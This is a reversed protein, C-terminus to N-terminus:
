DFDLGQVQGLFEGERGELLEDIDVNGATLYKESVGVNVRQNLLGKLETRLAAIESKSTEAAARMRKRKGGGRGMASGEGAAFEESDYDVGLEEAATKLWNGEHREKEKALNADSIRKALSVRPKLRTVVRRDLDLTRIFFKSKKESSDRDQAHVKAVLRRVPVVEDPACILISTGSQEARATRGSRHVYADATRPIHYHLILQVSPIDLGRAAVDTAVLVSSSSSCAFREICHLRAKQEMQSHLAHAQINLNQLFPVLRRTSSISNTFILIRGNPHHLLVAYLYLDKELAACEVLGERLSSAMQAAPNVDIFKPREERFKLKNFLYGLSGQGNTVKSESLRGKGALKRQLDKEFTASFVLTQRSSRALSSQTEDRVAGDNGVEEKDMSSLIEEIEKFYGESLLRDAEDLVLFKIMKLWRLLGPTSSIVDWLRGPTGIIIDASDLLRKQKLLSLGGTLTAIRPRGADLEACLDNLHKSLQHALERTPSLIMALPPNTRDSSRTADKSAQEAHTELFHEIIPIGYALTKGSGTVAKGVVDHGDRIEPIAAAQIPTPRPFKLRALSSLLSPSLQLAAWASVSLSLGLVSLLSRYAGVILAM